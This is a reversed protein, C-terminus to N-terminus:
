LDMDELAEYDPVLPREPPFAEDPHRSPAWIFGGLPLLRVRRKAFFLEWAPWTEDEVDIRVMAAAESPLPIPGSTIEVRGVAREALLEAIPANEVFVRWWWAPSKIEISAPEILRYGKWRLSLYKPELSPLFMPASDPVTLRFGLRLCHTVWAAAEAAGPVVVALAAEEEPTPVTAAPITVGTRLWGLVDVVSKGERYRRAFLAWIPKTFPNLRVGEISTGDARQPAPFRRWDCNRLYTALTLPARGEDRWGRLVRPLAKLAAKREGRKVDDWALRAKAVAGVSSAPYAALLAEFDADVGDDVPEPPLFTFRSRM